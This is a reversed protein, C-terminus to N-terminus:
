PHFLEGSLSELIQHRATESLETELPAGADSVGSERGEEPVAGVDLFQAQSLEVFQGVGGKDAQCLDEPVFKHTPNETIPNLRTTRVM